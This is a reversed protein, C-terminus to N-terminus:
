VDVVDDLKKSRKKDKYPFVLISVSAKSFVGKEMNQPVVTDVSIM